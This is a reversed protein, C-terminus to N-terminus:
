QLTILNAGLLEAEEHSHTILLVAHNKAYDAILKLLVDRTETDVASFPEDLLLLDGGYALARALSVRQQMGGSLENPYKNFSDSLGVKTLLERAIADSNQKNEIVLRVNDLATLWPFLRPEQFKYAIRSFTSELIGGDAQELGAIINLLTTKGIGSAGMVATIGMDDLFFSVNKLVQKDGFSKSIGNIKLM